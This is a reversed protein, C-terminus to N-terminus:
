WLFAEVASLEAFFWILSLTVRNMFCLEILLLAISTALEESM